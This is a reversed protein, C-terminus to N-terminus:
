MLEEDRRLNIDSNVGLTKTVNAQKIVTVIATQIHQPIYPKRYIFSVYRSKDKNLILNNNSFQLNIEDLLSSIENATNLPKNVIHIVSTADAYFFIKNDKLQHVNITSKSILCGQVM